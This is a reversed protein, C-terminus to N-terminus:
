NILEKIFDIRNRIFKKPILDNINDYKNKFDIPDTNNRFLINNGNNLNINYNNFPNNTIIKTQCSLAEFCRITIGTQKPHAYDITYNSLQLIEVYKSYSLPKFYIYKYYKYYLIPNKVFNYIFTFIDKEFIYIFVKDSNVAKLVRDIYKLRNSHNRVIASISYKIKKAKKNEPLSSFLEVIKISHNEADRYDFTYYDTVNKYWNLPASHYKFSDFNYGVVKPCIERLKNILSKSMGRGKIILVLDYSKGRIYKKLIVKNTIYTLLPIHLKGMIKGIVNQPYEDNILIVNYGMSNLTDKLYV